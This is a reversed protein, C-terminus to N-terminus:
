SPAQIEGEHRSQFHKELRKRRRPPRTAPSDASMEKREVIDATDPFGLSWFHEPTEPARYRDRHRSCEKMKVKLAEDSLGSNKYYQYCQKCSFGDLKDRESKKRVVQAHAFELSEQKPVRDFSDNFWDIQLETKVEVMATTLEQLPPPTTTLEQLPPSSTTLEQLPPPTVPRDLAHSGDEFSVDSDGHYCSYEDTFPVLTQTFDCSMDKNTVTPLHSKTPFFKFSRSSSPISCLLQSIVKPSPAITENDEDTFSGDCSADSGRDISHVSFRSSLREGDTVTALQSITEQYAKSMGGTHAPESDLHQHSDVQKGKPQPQKGKPQPQKGAAQGKELNVQTILHPAITEDFINSEQITEDMNKSQGPLTHKRSMVGLTKSPTTKKKELEDKSSVDINKETAEQSRLAKPSITRAQTVELTQHRAASTTQSKVSTSPLLRVFTATSIDKVVSALSNKREIEELSRRIAEKVQEEEASSKSHPTAPIRRRRVVQNLRSQKLSSDLNKKNTLVNKNEKLLLARSNTKECVTQGNLKKKASKLQASNRSTQQKQKDEPSEGQKAKNGAHKESVINEPGNGDMQGDANTSCKDLAHTHIRQSIAQFLFHTVDNSNEVDQCRATSINAVQTNLTVESGSEGDVSTCTEDPSQNLSRAATTLNDEMHQWPSHVGLTEPVVQTTPQCKDLCETSPQLKDLCETEPVLVSDSATVSSVQLEEVPKRRKCDPMGEQYRSHRKKLRNLTLKSAVKSSLSSQDVEGFLDGNM